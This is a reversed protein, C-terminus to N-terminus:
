SRDYRLLCAPELPKGLRCGGVSSSCCFHSLAINLNHCSTTAVKIVYLHNLNTGNMSINEPFILWEDAHGLESWERYGSLHDKYAKSEFTIIEM